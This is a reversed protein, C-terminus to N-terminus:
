PSEAAPSRGRWWKELLDEAPKGGPSFGGDEPGPARRGAEYLWAFSGALWDGEAAELEGLLARHAQLQALPRAPGPSWQWPEVWPAPSSKYGYETVLLAKGWRRSEAKWLGVQRRAGRRLAAPRARPDDSLPAFAQVGLLDLEAWLGITGFEGWWNACYTLRGSYAARVERVLRSWEEPWSSSLGALELGVALVEVSEEQALRALDVLFARYSAFWAAAREASDFRIEGRWAGEERRGGRGIEVHPKLFVALGQAHADRIARALAEREGARGDWPRLRTSGLEDQWAFASLAVAQAGRESLRRYLERAAGADYAGEWSDLHLVCAGHLGPAAVAACAAAWALLAFAAFRVRM